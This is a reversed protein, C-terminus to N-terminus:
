RAHVGGMVRKLQETANDTQEVSQLERTTVKRGTLWQTRLGQWDQVLLNTAHQANVYFPKNHTVYFAAILPAEEAGVLDVLRCLNSNVTHNRKPEIGYRTMYATRYAEWTDVSRRDKQVPPVEKKKEKKEEEETKQVIVESKQNQDIGTVPAPSDRSQGRSEESDRQKQKRKAALKRARDDRMMRGSKITIEDDSPRCITGVKKEILEHLVLSVDASPKGIEGAWGELNLTRIGRKPANWLVCLIDMWAGRAQMSLCRTDRQYDAVFLPMYPLKSM